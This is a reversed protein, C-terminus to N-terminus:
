RGAWRGTKNTKPSQSGVVAPQEAQERYELPEETETPHRGARM